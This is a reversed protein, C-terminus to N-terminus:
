NGNQIDKNFIDKNFIDIRLSKCDRPNNTTELYEDDMHVNLNLENIYHKLVKKPGIDFYQVNVDIDDPIDKIKDLIAKLDEEFQKKLM